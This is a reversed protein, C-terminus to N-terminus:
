RGPRTGGPSWRRLGEWPRGLRELAAAGRPHVGPLKTASALASLYDLGRLRAQQFFSAASKEGVGRAPKNIIRSLSEGDGPNVVVRLYSVLDKIEEREFFRQAGVV